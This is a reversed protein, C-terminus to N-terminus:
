LYSYSVRLCCLWNVAHYISGRKKSSFCLEFNMNCWVWMASIHLTVDTVWGAMKSHSGYIHQTKYDYWHLLITLYVVLKIWCHGINCLQRYCDEPEAILSFFFVQNPGVHAILVATVGEHRIKDLCHPILAFPTFMYSIQLVHWDVQIMFGKVTKISEMKLPHPTVFM